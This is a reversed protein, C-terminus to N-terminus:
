TREKDLRKFQAAKIKQWEKDAREFLEQVQGGDLDMSLAVERLTKLDIVGWLEAILRPFQIRNNNWNRNARTFAEARRKNV